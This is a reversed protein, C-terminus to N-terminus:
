KDCKIICSVDLFANKQAWISLFLFYKIYLDADFVSM